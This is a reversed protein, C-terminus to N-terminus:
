PPILVLPAVAQSDAQFRGIADHNVNMSSAPVIASMGKLGESGPFAIEDGVLSRM